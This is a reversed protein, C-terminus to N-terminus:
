TTWENVAIPPIPDASSVRGSRVRAAIEVGYGSRTPVQPMRGPHGCIGFCAQAPVQLDTPLDEEPLDVSKGLVVDASRKSGGPRIQQSQDLMDRDGLRAVETM